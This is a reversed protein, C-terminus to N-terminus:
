GNVLEGKCYTVTAKWASGKQQQKLLLSVAIEAMERMPQRCSVAYDIFGNISYVAQRTLFPKLKNAVFDNVCFVTCDSDMKEPLGTISADYPLPIVTGRIKYQACNRLFANRRATCSDEKMDRHTVFVPNKIGTKVAHAFLRDLADDNDLGVYDAYTGPIMKDFFVMNAGLVRLRSFLSEPNPQGSPWIILNKIGKSVLDIAANKETEPNEDTIRLILLMDKASLNKEVVKIFELAFPDNVSTLLAVKSCAEINGKSHISVFTGRGQERHLVHSKELQEYARRVTVRSTGTRDAMDRETPLKDGPIFDGELIARFIKIRISDTKNIHTLLVGAEPRV